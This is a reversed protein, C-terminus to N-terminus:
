IPRDASRVLLKRRSMRSSMAWFDGLARAIDSLQCIADPSNARPWASEIHDKLAQPLTVHISITSMGSTGTTM